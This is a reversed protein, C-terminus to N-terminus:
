KLIYESETADTTKPDEDLFLCPNAWITEPHIYQPHALLFEGVRPNPNQSFVYWNIQDPHALLWDVVRDNANGSLFHYNRINDWEAFIRDVMRDNPNQCMADNWPMALLRDVLVDHPNMSYWSWHMPQTSMRQLCVDVMRPNPNRWANETFPHQLCVDVARENPNRQFSNLRIYLPHALLWNVASDHPNMCVCSYDITNAQAHPKWEPKLVCDLYDRLEDNQTSTDMKQQNSQTKTNIKTHTYGFVRFISFLL